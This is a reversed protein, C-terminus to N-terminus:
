DKAINTEYNNVTLETSGLWLHAARIRWRKRGAVAFSLRRLWDHGSERDTRLVLSRRGNGGQVHRGGSSSKVVLISRSLSQIVKFCFIQTGPDGDIECRRFHGLMVNVANRRM